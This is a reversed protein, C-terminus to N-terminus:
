RGMLDLFDAVSLGAKRIAARLLGVKLTGRCPITVLQGNPMKIAVHSGKGSRRVGGARRFLQVAKEARLDRPLAGPM